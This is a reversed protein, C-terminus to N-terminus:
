PMDLAPEAVQDGVHLVRLFGDGFADLIKKIYKRVDLVRLFSRVAGKDGSDVAQLLRRETLHDQGLLPIALLIFIDCPVAILTELGTLHGRLPAMLDAHFQGPFHPAVPKLDDDGGVQVFPVQVVVETEIRHRELITSLVVVGLGLM